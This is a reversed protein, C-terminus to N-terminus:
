DNSQLYVEGKLRFSKQLHENYFSNPDASIEGNKYLGNPPLKKLYVDGTKYKEKLFYYRADLAKSYNYHIMSYYIGTIVIGAPFLWILKYNRKKGNSAQVGLLVFAIMHYFSIFGFTRDPGIEGMVYAIPYHYIFTVIPLSIFLLRPSVKKLKLQFQDALFYSVIGISLWVLLKNPVHFLYIKIVSKLNIWLAEILGVDPLQSIRIDNGRGAYLLGFAILSSLLALGLISFKLHVKKKAYLILLLLQLGIFLLAVPVSAGGLFFSLVVVWIFHIKRFKSFQFFLVNAFALVSWTYTFVACHWFWTSGIDLIGFFMLPTLALVPTLLPRSSNLLNLGNRITLMLFLLTIGDRFLIMIRLSDFSILWHNFFVSTFRTSWNEYEWFTAQLHGGYENVNFQFHLDDPTLQHWYSTLLYFVMFLMGGIILPIKVKM